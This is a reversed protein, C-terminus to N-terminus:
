SICLSSRAPLRHACANMRISNNNKNIKKSCKRGSVREIFVDGNLRATERSMQRCKKWNNKLRKFITM